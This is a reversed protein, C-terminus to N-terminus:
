HRVVELVGRSSLILDGFRSVLEEGPGEPAVGHLGCGGCERLVLFPCCFALFLVGVWFFSWVDADLNLLLLWELGLHRSVLTFVCVTAV